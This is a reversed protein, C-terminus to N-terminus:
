KQPKVPLQPYTVSLAPNLTVNVNKDIHEM